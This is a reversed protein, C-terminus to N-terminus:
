RVQCQAMGYEISVLGIKRLNSDNREDLDEFLQNLQTYRINCNSINVTEIRNLTKSLLEKPIASIDINNLTLLKLHLDEFSAIEEFLNNTKLDSETLDVQEVSCIAKSQLLM